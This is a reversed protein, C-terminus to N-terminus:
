SLVAARVIGVCFLLLSYSMSRKIKGCRTAWSRTGPRWCSPSISRWVPPEQARDQEPGAVVANLLGGVAVPSATPAPCRCGGPASVHLLAKRGGAVAADPLSAFPGLLVRDCANDAGQAAAPVGPGGPGAVRAQPGAYDRGEASGKPEVNRARGALLGARGIGMRKPRASYRKGGHLLCVGRNMNRGCSSRREGARHRGPVGLPVDRDAMRDAACGTLCARRFSKTLYPSKPQEQTSREWFLCLYLKLMYAVTLAGSLIFLWEVATYLWAGHPQLHIYATLAEHLLTKSAYGSFLPVGAIGLMGSLFLIHLLPKGRGFGRIDNLNLAHTYMAAIGACLFLILKFLSHNVMHGVIGQAAVGGQDGLLGYLGVGLLIFGIQSMSSCALIRKMEVSLLALVAGSVMTIVGIWFVLVHWAPVEWLFKVSLLLMGLVGTKLLMGSLLASAPAPAVPHAKPLWVHLPFAGAKAGFGVLMLIAPLLLRSSDIGELLGEAASYRATILAQPLLLMGILLCLGGIVAIWLYTQAARLAEPTEEHAVWPYSSLGMIEFFVITTLLQDSLFVGIVASLTLLSFFAYRPVGGKRKFYSVSFVSTVMWMGAAIWAYLARFGDAAFSIGMVCFHESTFSLVQGHAAQWLLASLLALVAVSVGTLLYLAYRAQRRGLLYALPAGVMPLAVAIPLWLNGQM